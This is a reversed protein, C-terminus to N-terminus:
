QQLRLPRFGNERMTEYSATSSVSDSRSRPTHEQTEEAFLPVFPESVVPNLTLFAM